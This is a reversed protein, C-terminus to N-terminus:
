LPQRRAYRYFSHTTFDLGVSLETGRVECEGGDFIFAAYAPETFNQPPDPIAYPKCAARVNRWIFVSSKNLLTACFYKSCRALALVSQTSLSYLLIEALLEMPVRSLYDHCRKPEVTGPSLSHLRAIKFNSPSSMSSPSENREAVDQVQLGLPVSSIQGNTSSLVAKM